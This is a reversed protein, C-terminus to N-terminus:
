HNSFLLLKNRAPNLWFLINYKEKKKKEEQPVNFIHVDSSIPVVVYLKYNEVQM